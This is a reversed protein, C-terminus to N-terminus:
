DLEHGVLGFPNQLIFCENSFLYKSLLHTWLGNVRHNGSRSFDKRGQIRSGNQLEILAIRPNSFWFFRRSYVQGFNYMDVLM